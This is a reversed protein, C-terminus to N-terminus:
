SGNYNATNNKVAMMLTSLDTGDYYGQFDLRIVQFTGRNSDRDEYTKYRMKSLDLTVTYKDPGGGIVAGELVVQWDMLSGEGTGMPDLWADFETYDMFILVMYGTVRHKGFSRDSPEQSNVAPKVMEVLNSVTVGFTL